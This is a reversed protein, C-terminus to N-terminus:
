VEDEKGLDCIVSVAENNEEPWGTTNYVKFAAVPQGNYMFIFEEICELTEKHTYCHALWMNSSNDITIYSPTIGEMIDRYNGYPNKIKMDSIKKKESISLKKNVFAM